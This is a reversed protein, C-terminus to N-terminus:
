KIERRVKLPVGSQQIAILQRAEKQRKQFICLDTYTKCDSAHRTQICENNKWQAMSMFEKTHCQTRDSHLHYCRLIQMM